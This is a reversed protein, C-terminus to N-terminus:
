AICPLDGCAFIEVKSSFFTFISGCSVDAGAIKISMDSNFGRYNAWNNSICKAVGLDSASVGYALTQHRARRKLFTSVDSDSERLDTSSSSRVLTGHVECYHIKGNSAEQMLENKSRVPSAQRFPVEERAATTDISANFTKHHPPPTTRGFKEYTKHYTPTDTGTAISRKEANSLSTGLLRSGSHIGKTPSQLKSSTSCFLGSNAPSATNFKLDSTFPFTSTTIASTSNLKTYDKDLSSPLGVMNLSSAGGVTLKSSPLGLLQQELSALRERQTVRERLRKVLDDDDNHQLFKSDATSNVDHHNLTSSVGSMHNLSATPIQRHLNTPTHLIGQRSVGISAPLSAASAPRMLLSTSSSPRDLSGAIDSTLTTTPTAGLAKAAVQDAARVAAATRQSRLQSVTPIVPSISRNRSSVNGHYTDTLSRHRSQRSGIATLGGVSSYSALTTMPVATASDGIPSLFAKAGLNASLTSGSSNLIPTDLDVGNVGALISSIAPDLRVDYNFSSGGILASKKPTGSAILNSSTQYIRAGSDSISSSSGSIYGSRSVRSCM